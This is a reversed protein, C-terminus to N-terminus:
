PSAHERAALFDLGYEDVRSSGGHGPLDPAIARFGARALDRSFVDWTAGSSALAHLLLLPEGAPDGLERYAVTLGDVEVRATRTTAGDISYRTM